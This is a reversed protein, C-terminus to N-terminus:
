TAILFLHNNPRDLIQAEALGIGRSAGAIVINM